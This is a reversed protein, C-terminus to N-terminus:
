IIDMKYIYVTTRVPYMMTDQVKSYYMMSDDGYLANGYFDDGWEVWELTHYDIRSAKLQKSCYDKLKEVDESLRVPSNNIILCYM